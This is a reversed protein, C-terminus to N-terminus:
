TKINLINFIVSGEVVVVMIVLVPELWGSTYRAITSNALYSLPVNANVRISNIIVNMMIAHAIFVINAGLIIVALFAKSAIRLLTDDSFSINNL